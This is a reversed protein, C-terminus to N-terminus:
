YLVLFYEFQSLFVHQKRLFLRPYNTHSVLKVYKTALIPIIKHEHLAMYMTVGAYM